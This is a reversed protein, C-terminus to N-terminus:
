RHLDKWELVFFKNRGGVHQANRAAMEERLKETAVANPVYGAQALLILWYKSPQLNVHGEWEDGPEAASWIIKQPSASTVIRVVNRAYEQPIHEATETCIVADVDFLVSGKETLDCSTINLDKRVDEPIHVMASEHDWGDVAYGLEDLREIVAGLGCGIDLVTMNGPGPPGLTAAIADALRHYPGRITKMQEYFAVSEHSM